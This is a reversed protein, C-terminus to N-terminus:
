AYLKHMCTHTYALMYAYLQMSCHISLFRNHTHTYALMYAYLQMNCHISLFRNQTDLILVSVCSIQKSYRISSCLCVGKNKKHLKTEEVGFYNWPLSSFNRGNGVVVRNLMYSFLCWPEQIARLSKSCTPIDLIGAPFLTTFDAWFHHFEKFQFLKVM